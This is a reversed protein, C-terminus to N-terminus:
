ESCPRGALAREDFHPKEDHSRIPVPASPPEAVRCNSGDVLPRPEGRLKTSTLVM